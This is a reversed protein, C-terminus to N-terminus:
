KPGSMVAPNAPKASELLKLINTSRRDRMAYDRASMGAVSDTKASNAGATLLLQVMAADRQQVAKILPTEGSSNAVDVGARYKILLQAGEVFGIQAAAMLATNGDKDKLDAKASRSLLFAMWNLDRAKTVIMLGTEYTSQDRTDIIVSGPKTIIETAKAGNRDRVAKLFNYSDSFQAAAIGPVLALAAGIGLWLRKTRVGIMMM